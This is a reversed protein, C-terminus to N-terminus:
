RSPEEPAHLPCGQLIFWGFREGDGGRGRGHGNDLVPCVCGQEGAEPSGPHPTTKSM